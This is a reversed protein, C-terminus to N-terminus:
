LVVTTLELKFMFGVAYREFEFFAAVIKVTDIEYAIPVHILRSLGILVRIGFM